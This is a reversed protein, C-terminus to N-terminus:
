TADQTLRKALNITEFMGKLRDYAGQEPNLRHANYYQDVATTQEKYQAINLKTLDLTAPEAITTQKVWNEMMRVTGKADKNISLRSFHGGTLEVNGGFGTRLFEKERDSLKLEDYYAYHTKKFFEEITTKNDANFTVGDYLEQWTINAIYWMSAVTYLKWFQFAEPQTAMATSTRIREIYVSLHETSKPKDQRDNFTITETSSIKVNNIITQRYDYLDKYLDEPIIRNNSYVPANHLVISMTKKSPLDFYM